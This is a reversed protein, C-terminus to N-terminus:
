WLGEAALREHTDPSTPLALATAFRNLMLTVGIVMTLEVIEHDAWQRRM